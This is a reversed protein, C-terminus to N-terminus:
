KQKILYTIHYTTRTYRSPPRTASEKAQLLGLISKTAPNHDKGKEQPYIQLM